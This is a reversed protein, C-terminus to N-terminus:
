DLVGLMEEVSGFKERVKGKGEAGRGREAEDIRRWGEWGVVRLGRRRVEHQVAEWGLKPRRSSSTSTSITTSTTPFGFDEEYDMFGVEGGGAVWDEVIAEATEFADFMTSALVGTPGRKVWGSTYVGPVRVSNGGGDSGGGGGAEVPVVVRGRENPVLGMRPNFPIGLRVSGPIETSLYGISTLALQAQVVETHATLVPRSDPSFPSVDPPYTTQTFKIHTLSSPSQPNQSLFATPALHFDLSWSKNVSPPPPPPPHPLPYTHPTLIQLLRKQARPLTSQLTPPPFLPPPTTSPPADPPPLPLPHFYTAPLTLLERLEKITFSTQLLGRRGVVRVRKVRSRSLRELAYETIDTVRLRDIPSLLMRAVDLAVNGQGIITAEEADELNPNLHRYEPLGNYWGVFARASHIGSLTDEGPIGLKRDKSAGYALLLAHYHPLLTSLPLHRSPTPPNTNPTTEITTTSTTTPPPPDEGVPLNGLYTFNPHQAVEEFKDQCNKVEPHDPAVGYRVLGYPVPLAEYMDIKATPLRTLIRYASYFGAPGAGIIAIRPGDPTTTTLARRQLCSPSPTHVHRPTHRLLRLRPLAAM